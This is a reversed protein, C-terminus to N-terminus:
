NIYGKCKRDIRSNKHPDPDEQFLPLIPIKNQKKDLHDRLKSNSTESLMGLLYLISSILKPFIGNSTWKWGDSLRTAV